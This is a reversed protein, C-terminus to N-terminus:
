SSCGRSIIASETRPPMRRPDRVGVVLDAGTDRARAILRPIDSPDHQGDGDITVFADARSGARGGDDALLHRFGAALAAGKGGNVALDCCPVAPAPSTRAGHRGDLRRRDGLVADTFARRQFHRGRVGFRHQLLPRRRRDHAPADSTLLRVADAPAPAGPPHRRIIGPIDRSGVTM